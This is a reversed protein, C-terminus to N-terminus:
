KTGESEEDKLKWIADGVNCTIEGLISSKGEPVVSPSFNSPFSIRHTLIDKAPVYLWSYDSVNPVDLGIMVTILSNFKLNRAAKKVERSADAVEVLEVIPITSIINDYIRGQKGDSILWKEGNKNVKKVDFNKIIHDGIEAEM